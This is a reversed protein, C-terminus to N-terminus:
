FLSCWYDFVRRYQNGKLSADKHRRVSKNSQRKFWRRRGVGGASYRIYRGADKDFYAGSGYLTRTENYLKKLRRKDEIKRRHSM